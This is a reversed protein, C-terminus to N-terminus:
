YSNTQHDYKTTRDKKKLWRKLHKKAIHRPLEGFRKMLAGIEGDMQGWNLSIM